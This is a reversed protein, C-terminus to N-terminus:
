MCLYMHVYMRDRKSFSFLPNELDTDMRQRPYSSYMITLSTSIRYGVSAVSTMAELGFGFGNIQGLRHHDKKDSERWVKVGGRRRIVSLSIGIQANLLPGDKSNIDALARTLGADSLMISNM